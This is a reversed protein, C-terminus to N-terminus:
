IQYKTWKMYEGSQQENEFWGSNKMISEWQGYAKCERIETNFEIKLTLNSNDTKEIQEIVTAGELNSVKDMEYEGSLQENEFWGSNKM